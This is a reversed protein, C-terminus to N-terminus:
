AKKRDIWKRGRELAAMTEALRKRRTEERKATSVWLIYEHRYTRAFGAFAAAAKKNKALAAALDDPVPLPERQRPPPPHRDPDLDLNVAARLLKRLAERPFEELSTIRINQISTNNEGGSFLGAPDALETGRFFVLGAHKKCGSIGCVLKRGSFCLVNWKISETLDPEWRHFWERLRVCLSRSFDPLGEIWLDPNKTKPPSLDM